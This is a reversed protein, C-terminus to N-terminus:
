IMDKKPATEWPQRVIDKEDMLEMGLPVWRNGIIQVLAPSGAM